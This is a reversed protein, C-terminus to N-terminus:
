WGMLVFVFYLVRLTPWYTQAWWRGPSSTHVIPPDKLKLWLFQAVIKKKKRVSNPSSKIKAETKDGGTGEEIPFWASQQSCTLFYQTVIGIHSGCCNIGMCSLPKRKQFVHWEKRKKLNSTCTWSFWEKLCLCRKAPDPNSGPSWCWKCQLMRKLNRLYPRCSPRLIYKENCAVVYKILM